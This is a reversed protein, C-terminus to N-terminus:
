SLNRLIMIREIQGLSTLHTYIPGMYGKNRLELYEEDSLSKLKEEDITYIGNVSTKENKNNTIAISNSKFLNKETLYKTFQSTMHDREVFDTLFNQVSSLQDSVSGDSNFLPEGTETSFCSSKADICVAWDQDNETKPAMFFPYRRINAPIYTTNWKSPTYFVNETEQFGFLAVSKFQGTETDKIFVIPFNLCAQPFEHVLLYTMHHEKAHEYNNNGTLKLDKHLINSLFEVSSM